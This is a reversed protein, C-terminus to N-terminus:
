QMIRLFVFNAPFKFSIYIFCSDVCYFGSVKCFSVRMSRVRLLMLLLRECVNGFYNKEFIIYLKCFLVLSPTEKYYLQLVSAYIKRLFLGWCLHKGTIKAFTKFVRKECFGEPHSNRTRWANGLSKEFHCWSSLLLWKLALVSCIKSYGWLINAIKM